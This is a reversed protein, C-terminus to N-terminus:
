LELRDFIDRPESTQHIEKLVGAGSGDCHRCTVTIVKAEPPPSKFGDVDCDYQKTTGRGSCYLCPAYVRTTKM